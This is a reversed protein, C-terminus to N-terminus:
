RKAPRPLGALAAEVLLRLSTEDAGARGLAETGRHIALLLDGLTRSNAAPDIDGARQAAEIAASYALGLEHFADKSRDAVDADRGDLEATGRSCAAAPTAPRRAPTRSCTRLLL